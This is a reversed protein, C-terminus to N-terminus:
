VVVFLCFCWFLLVLFCCLVNMWFLWCDGVVVWVGCSGMLMWVIWLVGEVRM